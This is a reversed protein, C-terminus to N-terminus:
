IFILHDRILEENDGMVYSYLNYGDFVMSLDDDAPYLLVIKCCFM